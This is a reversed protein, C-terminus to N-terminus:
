SIGLLDASALEEEHMKRTQKRLYMERDAADMSLELVAPDTFAAVGYSVGLPVDEEWGPLSPCALDTNLRELRDRAEAEDAGVLLVLFEDGGWRFLLDDARIIRRIAGAVARIAADGAAHGFTDNIAKFDDVDVVAVTGSVVKAATPKNEVFSYFAHRNLAETLPDREALVRLRAGAAALERNAEQLESRISEMVLMVTGFALLMELILDYLSSYKLYAFAAPEGFSAIYACVPVYHCFDFILVLLAFSVVRLGPGRQRRARPGRLALYSAALFAAFITAHPIFLLSFNDSLQPLGLAFLGAPLIAWWHRHTLKVDSAYNRCGALFLYGFAYELFTYFSYCVKHDLPLCFAALLASLGLVLCAWSATWYDLFVRRISRTLLLSLITVSLIGVWQLALSVISTSTELEVDVL